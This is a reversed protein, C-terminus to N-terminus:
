NEQRQPRECGPELDQGVEDLTFVDSTPVVALGDEDQEDSWIVQDGVQVWMDDWDSPWLEVTTKDPDSTLVIGYGSLHHEQLPLTMFGRAENSWVFVCSGRDIEHAQEDKKDVPQRLLVENRAGDRDIPIGCDLCLKDAGKSYYVQLLLKHLHKSGCEPCTM